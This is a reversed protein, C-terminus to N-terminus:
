ETKFGECRPLRGRTGALFTTLLRVGCAGANTVPSHGTPLVIHTTSPAMEAVAEGYAPPTVHDFLGSVVLVPLTLPRLALPRSRQPRPAFARCIADSPVGVNITYEGLVQSAKPLGAFRSRLEEATTLSNEEACLVAFQQGQTTGSGGSEESGVAKLVEPDRKALADILAPLATLKKTNYFTQFVLSTAGDATLAGPQGPVTLPQAELSTIAAELKAELDGFRDKCKAASACAGNIRKLAAAFNEPAEAAFNVGPPVTSSLVLRGMWSSDRRAASLAVKTGYSTAFVDAKRIKLARRVTNLDQAIQATTFATLDIGSARLRQACSTYAAILIDRIAPDTTAASLQPAAAEEDPTCELAPKSAGVGRQEVFVVDRTDNLRALPSKFKASAFNLGVAAIAEGPGGSLFILPRKGSPRDARAVSVAVQIRRKEDADGHRLPVSVFACRVDRGERVDSPLKGCDVTTVQAGAVPASVGAAAAVAGLMVARRFTGPM